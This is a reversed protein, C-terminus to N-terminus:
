ATARPGPRSVEEAQNRSARAVRRQALPGGGACRRPVRVVIRRGHIPEGTGTLALSLQEDRLRDLERRAELAEPALVPRERTPKVPRRGWHILAVGLHMAARDLVGVRRVPHAESARDPQPPHDRREVPALHTKM